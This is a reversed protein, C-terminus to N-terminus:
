DVSEASADEPARDDIVPVYPASTPDEIEVRYYKDYTEGSMAADLLFKERGVGAAAKHALSTHRLVHAKFRDVDIGIRKMEAKTVNRIRDAGIGFFKGKDPGSERPGLSLFLWDDERPLDNTRVFYTEVASRFCIAQDRENGRAYKGCSVWRSMDGAQTKSTKPTDYRVREIKVGGAQTWGGFIGAPALDTHDRHFTRHIIRMDSSRNGIALRGLLLSKARLDSLSMYWNTQGEDWLRYYFDFVIQVSFTTAYRRANPAEIRATVAISQIVPEMSIRKGHIVKLTESIAARLQKLGGHQPKRGQSLALEAARTQQFDLCNAVAPVDYGFPDYDHVACFPIWYNVFYRRHVARQNM